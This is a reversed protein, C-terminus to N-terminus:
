LNAKLYKTIAENVSDEVIRKVFAEPGAGYSGSLHLKPYVGETALWSWTVEINYIYRGPRGSEEFCNANVQLFGQNSSKFEQRIRARLLEAQWVSLLYEKDLFCEDSVIANAYVTEFDARKMSPMAYSPLVVLPGTLVTLWVLLLRARYRSMQSLLSLAKTM